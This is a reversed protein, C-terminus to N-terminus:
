EFILIRGGGLSKEWVSGVGGVKMVGVIIIAISSIMIVITQLFDIWVVAKLGGQFFLCAM